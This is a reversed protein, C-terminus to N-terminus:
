LKMIFALEYYPPLSSGDGSTGAISGGGGGSTTGSYSHSHTGTSGSDWQDGERRVNWGFASTTGSYTHTHSAATYSGGAHTHTTTGGTAGPDTSANPVSVVFRSTLDPTGNTGNCLAWGKPINDIAGSWMIIGGKPVPGGGAAEALAGATAAYVAHPTPTLQQRPSLYTYENPDGLEGPRVGTELWTANGDFVSGFDLRVTFHGSPVNHDNIDIATALQNGDSPADYLRFELDYLGNAPSNAELLLAQYTLATGIVSPVVTIHVSAMVSTLTQDYLKLDTEGAQQAAYQFVFHVGASPPPSLGAAVVHYGEFAPISYATADALDGAEPRTEIHSFTGLVLGNDFGAYADYPLNNDSVVEISCSQGVELTISGTAQTNVTLSQAAHVISAM